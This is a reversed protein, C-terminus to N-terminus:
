SYSRTKKEYPIQGHLAIVPKQAAEEQIENVRKLADSLGKSGLKLTIKEMGTNFMRKYLYQQATIPDGVKAGM